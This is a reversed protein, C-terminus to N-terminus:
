SELEMIPGSWENLRMKEVEVLQHPRMAEM